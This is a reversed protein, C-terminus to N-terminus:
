WRFDWDASLAKFETILAALYANVVWVFTRRSLTFWGLKGHRLYALLSRLVYETEGGRATRGDHPTEIAAAIMAPLSDDPSRPAAARLNGEIYSLQGEDLKVNELCWRLCMYLSTVASRSILNEKRLNFFAQMQEVAETLGSLDKTDAIPM